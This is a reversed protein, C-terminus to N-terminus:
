RISSVWEIGLCASWCTESAPITREAQQVVCVTPFRLKYSQCEVFPCHLTERHIKKKLSVPACAQCMVKCYNDLIYLSGIYLRSGAFSQRCNAYVNISYSIRTMNLSLPAPRHMSGIETGQFNGDYARIWTQLRLFSANTSQAMCCASMHCSSCGVLNVRFSSHVAIPGLYNQRQRTSLNQSPPEHGTHSLLVDSITQFTVRLSM